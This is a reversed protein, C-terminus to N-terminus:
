RVRPKRNFSAMGVRDRNLADTIARLAERNPRAYREAMETTKQGLARSIVQLSVGNSALRSAFTHRMDHFRFRRTIGAILKAKRFHQNITSVSYREGAETLFVREGLLPRRKREDLAERCAISIPIESLVGTKARRVRIWGGRLDICAWRLDLLDGQTLGTELAVVFVPNQHNSAVFSTM